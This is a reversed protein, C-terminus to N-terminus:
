ISEQMRTVLMRQRETEEQRLENLQKLRGVAERLLDAPVQVDAASPPIVSPSHEEGDRGEGTGEEVTRDEEDRENGGEGHESM